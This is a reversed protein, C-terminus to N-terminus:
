RGVQDNENKENLIVTEQENRSTVSIIGAWMWGQVLIVLYAYSPKTDNRKRTNRQMEKKIKNMLDHFLGTFRCM